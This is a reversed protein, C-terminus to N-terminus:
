QFMSDFIAVNLAEALEDIIMERLEDVEEMSPDDGLLTEFAYDLTTIYANAIDLLSEKIAMPLEKKTPFEYVKAMILAGKGNTITEMIPHTYAAFVFLGHGSENM